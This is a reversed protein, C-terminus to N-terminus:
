PTVAPVDASRRGAAKRRKPAPKRSKRTGPVSPKALKRRRKEALAVRMEAAKERQAETIETDGATRAAEAAAIDWQEVLDERWMPTRPGMPYDPRMVRGDRVAQNLWMKTRDGYRERMHRSLLWRFPM